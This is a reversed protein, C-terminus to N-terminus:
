RVLYVSGRHDYVFGTIDAASFHYGYKGAAAKIGKYTADWGRSKDESIFVITGSTSFITLKYTSEDLGTAFLTFIDNTGDGDPTFANPIQVYSYLSDNEVHKLTTMGYEPETKKCAAFVGSLLALYLIYRKRM